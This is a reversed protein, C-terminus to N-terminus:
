VEVHKSHKSCVGPMQWLKVVLNWAGAGVKHCSSKIGARPLMSEDRVPFHGLGRQAGPRNGFIIWFPDMHQPSLHRMRFDHYIMNYNEHCYRKKTESLPKGHNALILM